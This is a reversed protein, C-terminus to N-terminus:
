HVDILDGINFYRRLSDFALGEVDKEPLVNLYDILLFYLTDVAEYYDDCITYHDIYKGYYKKPKSAYYRKGLVEIRKLTVNIRKEILEKYLSDKEEFRIM